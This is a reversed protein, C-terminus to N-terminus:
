IAFEWQSNTKFITIRTEMNSEEYIGGEGEERRWVTDKLRHIWQQGAFLKILVMKRFEM